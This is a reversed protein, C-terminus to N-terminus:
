HEALCNCFPTEDVHSMKLVLHMMLKAGFHWVQARGHGYHGMLQSRLWYLFTGAPIAAPEIVKLALIFRSSHYEVSANRRIREMLEVAEDLENKYTEEVKKTM